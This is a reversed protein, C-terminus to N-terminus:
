AAQERKQRREDLHADWEAAIAVDEEADEAVRETLSALAKTKDAGRLRAIKQLETHIRNLRAGMSGCRSPYCFSVHGDRRDVALFPSILASFGPVPAIAM